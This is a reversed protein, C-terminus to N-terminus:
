AEASGLARKRNMLVAKRLAAKLEPIGEDSLCSIPYVPPSEGIRQRFNLLHEAAEPEDMKNAGVLRPKELLHPDYAELEKLLQAYDDAPDRGDVGAMDILFLLVRCREIHRLFRHGLGRNESAGEILGPIDALALRDYSDGYEVIGVSPDKTTFPYHGTRPQANTLLGVLSSKGANPIGVLGIDAITKLEFRFFGEDGATGPTTQRPAQDTPSAFSANGRGGEGGELLLTSQEPDLVEVVVEENAENVVVTGLPVRLVLDEGGAGNQNKGRGPEGNRARWIPKFHFNRLDGVNEDGRLFISGGRGGDGGDPGGKPLYKARHMSLCGDGGKGAKLDVRTEDYFM